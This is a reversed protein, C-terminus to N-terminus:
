AMERAGTRECLQSIYFNEANKEISSTFKKNRRAAFAVRFKASEKGLKPASNKGTSPNSKDGGSGSQPHRAAFITGM